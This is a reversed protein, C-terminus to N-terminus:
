EPQRLFRAILEGLRAPQDFPLGHGADRVQELRLRPNITLLQAALEPTVVPDDGIVLLTPMRLAAVIALYDPGPPELVAFAALSTQLRAEALHELIELSRHPSRARAREVLQEKTLKQAQRHQEAVDSAHVERQREPTLFTPDVLVLARVREPARSAALAATMGGMSHGVLAPRSLGLADILGLADDALQDYRYGQTPASSAGHGRADPLIVDFSAELRRAVPSWCAGSGMLGHLMVVPPRAAGTRLGTRLGTSLYHLELGHVACRDSLWPLPHSAQSAASAGTAAEESSM